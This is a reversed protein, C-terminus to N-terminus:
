ESNVGVKSTCKDVSGVGNNLCRYLCVFLCVFLCCMMEYSGECLVYLVVVRIM